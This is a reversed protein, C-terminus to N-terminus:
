ASHIPQTYASHLLAPENSFNCYELASWINDVKVFVLFLFVSSFIYQSKSLKEFDCVYLWSSCYYFPFQSLQCFDSQFDFRSHIHTYAVLSNQIHLINTNHRISFKLSFTLIVVFGVTWIQWSLCKGEISTPLDYGIQKVNFSDFSLLTINYHCRNNITTITAILGIKSWIQLLQWLYMIEICAVITLGVRSKPVQKFKSCRANNM